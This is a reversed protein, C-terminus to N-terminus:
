RTAHVNARQVHAFMLEDNYDLGVNFPGFRLPKCNIPGAALYDHKNEVAVANHVRAMAFHLLLIRAAFSLIPVTVVVVITTTTTAQFLLSFLGTVITSGNIIIAIALENARALPWVCVPSDLCVWVFWM